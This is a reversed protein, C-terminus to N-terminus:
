HTGDEVELNPYIWADSMSILIFALLALFTLHHRTLLM